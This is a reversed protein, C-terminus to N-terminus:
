ALLAYLSFTVLTRPPFNKALYAIHWTHYFFFSHRFFETHSLIPFQLAPSRLLSVSKCVLLTACCQTHWTRRSGELLCRLHFHFLFFDMSLCLFSDFISRKTALCTLSAYTLYLLLTHLGFLGSGIHSDRSWWLLAAWSRRNRLTKTTEMSICRPQPCGRDLRSLYGFSVFVFFLKPLIDFLLLLSVFRSQSSQKSMNSNLITQFVPLAKSSISTRGSCYLLRVQHLKYDHRLGREMLM